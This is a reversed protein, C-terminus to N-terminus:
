LKTSRTKADSGNLLVCCSVCEAAPKSYMARGCLDLPNSDRGALKRSLLVPERALVEGLAKDVFLVFGDHQSVAGSKEPRKWATALVGIRSGSHHGYTRNRDDRSWGRRSTERDRGWVPAFSM